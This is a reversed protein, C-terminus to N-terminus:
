YKKVTDQTAQFLLSNHIEVLKQTSRAGLLQNFCKNIEATFDSFFTQFSCFLNFVASFAPRFVCCYVMSISISNYVISNQYLNTWELNGGNARSFLVVFCETQTSERTDLIFPSNFLPRFDHLALLHRPIHM